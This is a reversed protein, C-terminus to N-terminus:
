KVVGATHAAIQSIDAGFGAFPSDSRLRYDGSAVDTFRVDAASAVFRNGSPYRSELRGIHGNQEYVWGPFDIDLTSTGESGSGKVGYGATAGWINGRAV